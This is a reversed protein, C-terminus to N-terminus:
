TPKRSNDNCGRAGDVGTCVGALTTLPRGKPGKAVPAKGAATVGAHSGVALALAFLAVIVAVAARTSLSRLVAFGM